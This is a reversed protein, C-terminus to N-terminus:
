CVSSCCTTSGAPMTSRKNSATTTPDLNFGLSASGFPLDLDALIVDRGYARAITSAVNHAITSSGVGGKAGIFAFSRGLKNAGADLYLRSIAAIISIPDFPAVIYESVGRALLERYVFVDNAYGILIM